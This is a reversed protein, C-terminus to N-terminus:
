DRTSLGVHPYDSMYIIRCTSLGVHPYEPSRSQELIIGIIINFLYLIVYSEQQYVDVATQKGPSM